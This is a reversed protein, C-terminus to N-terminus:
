QMKKLFSGSSTMSDAFVDDNAFILSIGLIAIIFYPIIKM